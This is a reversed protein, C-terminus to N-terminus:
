CEGFRSIIFYHNSDKEYVVCTKDVAFNGAIRLLSHLKKVPIHVRM